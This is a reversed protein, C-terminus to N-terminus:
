LSCTSPFFMADLQALQLAYEKQNQLERNFFSTYSNNLGTSKLVRIGSFAEQSINTLKSLQGQIRASSNNIKNSVFYIIYSLLPLPALTYISLWFNVKLM